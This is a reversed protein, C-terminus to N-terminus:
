IKLSSFFEKLGKVDHTRIISAGNLYAIVSLPKAKKDRTEMKGMLFSKNSIGICIFFGMTKLESLRAIIEYSFRPIASIFQGMGPDIIINGSKIGQKKAYLIQNKFFEKITKIVDKYSKEKITTRPSNDKSYTMIIPCNHKKAIKAMKKDSRLATVDNIMNAGNLLAQNAVESKYTDISIPLKTIKRLAKIVPITRLLEEELTIKKSNPGTSEGGVDIIDAGEQELEIAKKIAKELTNYKGGDSFSDPTVNLIGMIILRKQASFDFM